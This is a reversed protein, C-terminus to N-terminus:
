VAVDINDLGFLPDLPLSFDLYDTTPTHRYHDNQAPESEFRRLNVPQSVDFSQIIADIDYTPLDYQLDHGLDSPLNQTHFLGVHHSALHGPDRVGDEQSTVQAIAEDPSSATVTSDGIDINMVKILNLIVGLARKPGLYLRQHETLISLCNQLCDHAHSGAPSHAAIRAHITASVYTAYSISYPALQM